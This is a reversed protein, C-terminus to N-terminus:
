IRSLTDQLVSVLNKDLANLSYENIAVLSANKGIRVRLDKDRVLNITKEVFEDLDNAKFGTLGDEILYSVEGNNSAVVALGSSLYEFVKTPSKSWAWPSQQILPFLGIDFSQLLSPVEEYKVQPIVSIPLDSYITNICNKVYKMFIGGGVLVLETNQCEKYVKEFVELIFLVNHYIQEGWVIGVWGLKVINDNNRYEKCPFRDSDMGTPVLFTKSNWQTLFDKLFHSAAICTSANESIRKTAQLYNSTGFVFKNIWHNQFFVSLEIDYDDYDFVYPYNRYRNLLITSASHYHIKQLYILRKENKLAKYAKLNLNIRSCLDLNWMEEESLNKALDQKYSLVETDFGHKEKLIRAFHYCRVRTHPLEYGSIGIFTIKM